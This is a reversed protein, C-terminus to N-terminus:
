PELSFYRRYVESLNPALGASLALEGVTGVATLRGAKLIGVRHALGEVLHLLHSSLVVALGKEASLSAILALIKEIGAPDLGLTPEDLFLIEPEKMLVEALGLRQRMGRSFGAIPRDAEGELEVAALARSVAANRAKDKLGNLEAVFNLNQRATMDGYFGVNEPLYGVRRKIELPNALPSFGLVRADGEDPVSLGMLMLITTTKGAGNPGLLGFIEGAEINLNLNEVATKSGYRKTLGRTEIVPQRGAAVEPVPM